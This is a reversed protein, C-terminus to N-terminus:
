KAYVKGGKVTYQKGDMEYDGDAKSTTGLPQPPTEGSSHTSGAKDHTQGAKVFHTATDEAQDLVGRLTSPDFNGSTLGGLQKLIYAGRGGFTAASHEALYDRAALFKGADEGHSSLWRTFAQRAEGGPGQFEPHAALIQRMTHIQNVASGALDGTRRETASPQPNYFKDQNFQFEQASLGLRGAAISSNRQATAIRQQAMEMQQPMNDTQAKKYAKQAEALEEQAGKLDTVAKQSESMEEYRLPRLAGNEMAYGYQALTSTTQDQHHQETEHQKESALDLKAQNLEPQAQLEQTRANAEGEQAGKLNEESEKGIVSNLNRLEMAHHSTTGPLMMEATRTPGLMSGAAEAIHLPIEAGWGLVKGLTPHNPMAGEIKSHIQDIGAGTSLLRRRELQDGQETGRIPPSVNPPTPASLSPASGMSPASMPPPAGPDSGHSLMLSAGHHGTVSPNNPAGLDPAHQPGGIQPVPPTASPAQLSPTQAGAAAGPGGMAGHAQVLAQQAGPSLGSLEALIPNMGGM